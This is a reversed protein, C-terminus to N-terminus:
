GFNAKVTTTPTTTKMSTKMMGFNTLMYALALTSNGTGVRMTMANDANMRFSQINRIAPMTTRTKANL